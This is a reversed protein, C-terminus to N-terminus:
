FIYYIMSYFCVKSEVIETRKQQYTLLTLNKLYSLPPLFIKPWSLILLFTCLARNKARRMRLRRVIITYAHLVCCCGAEKQIIKPWRIDTAM